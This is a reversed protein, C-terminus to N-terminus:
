NKRIYVGDFSCGRERLSCMGVEQIRITKQQPSFTIEMRCDANDYFGSYENETFVAIGIIGDAQGSCANQTISLTFSVDNGEPRIEIWASFGPSNSEHNYHGYLQQYDWDTKEPLSFEEVPEYTMTDTAAEASEITNEQVDDTKKSQCGLLLLLITILLYNM